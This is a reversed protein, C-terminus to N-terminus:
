RIACRTFGPHCAATGSRFVIPEQFFNEHGGAASGDRQRERCGWPLRTHWAVASSGSVTDRTTLEGHKRRHAAHLWIRSSGFFHAERPPPPASSASTKEHRTGARVTPLTIAPLPRCPAGTSAARARGPVDSVPSPRFHPLSGDANKPLSASRGIIRRSRLSCTTRIVRHAIKPDDAWMVIQPSRFARPPHQWVRAPPMDDQARSSIRGMPPTSTQRCGRFSGRASARRRIRSGTRAFRDATPPRRSGLTALAHARRRHHPAIVCAIRKATGSQCLLPPSAPPLDSSKAAGRSIKHRRASGAERKGEDQCRRPERRSGRRAPISGEPEHLVTM